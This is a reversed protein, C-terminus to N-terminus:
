QTGMFTLRWWDMLVCECVDQFRSDNGLTRGVVVMCPLTLSDGM